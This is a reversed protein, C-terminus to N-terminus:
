HGLSLPTNFELGPFTVTYSSHLEETCKPYFGSNELIRDSEDTTNFATQPETHLAIYLKRINKLMKLAITRHHHLGDTQATIVLKNWLDCFENQLGPLAENIDLQCVARLTRQSARLIDDWDKEESGAYTQVAMRVIFIVNALLMDDDNERVIRTISLTSLPPNKVLQVWGHREHGLRKQIISDSITLAAVCQAYFSTITVTHFNNAWNRMSLGFEICELFGDWYGFLVLRVIDSRHRPPTSMTEMAKAFIVMRRHKVIEETTNSKLTRDMLGILADNLYANNPEVEIFKEKLELKQGTDSSCLLSLGEFFKDFDAEDDLTEFTWWLLQRDVDPNPKLAFIETTEDMGRPHHNIMYVGGLKSRTQRYIFNFFAPFKRLFLLRMGTFFLSFAGTLPTFCPSDKRAIPYISLHAYLIVCVGIWATVVKFITRNIGYLFVFLGAFFVFLSIHLLLRIAEVARPIHWKEVGRRYFAHIRARKQPLNPGFAVSQYRRAWQQLMIALLACTLTICLSLFWLGNVWVSATPPSFTGIVNSRNPQKSFQQHIYIRSLFRVHGAQEAASYGPYVSIAFDRDRCLLPWDIFELNFPSLALPRPRFVSLSFYEMQM